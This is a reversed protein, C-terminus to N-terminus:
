LFECFVANSLDLGKPTLAIKDDKQALLGQALFQHLTKNYVEFIDKGFRNKFRIVSIGETLRLGLLVFESMQTAKDIQEVYTFAFNGNIYSELCQTKKLRKHNFYSSAGLGLGLYERGTWYGLNHNCQYGPRAWNSIEYHLFGSKALKEKALAYMARDEEESAIADVLPKNTALPTGEEVSLAYCSIHTIPLNTAIDLSKALGDVTQHPLAFILDVSIDEFGVEHALGVVRQATQGNHVRGIHRLIDDEFSQVGFSIRKFGLNRLGVLYDKDVTDPNAEISMHCDNALAFNDQLTRLIDGLQKLSLLSPTGGGFFVTEVAYDVFDVGSNIIDLKLAKAYDNIRHAQNDFTLFDCYFCRSRCFPMHIYISLPTM